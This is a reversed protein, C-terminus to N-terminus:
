KAKNNADDREKRLDSISGAGKYALLWGVGCAISILVFIILAVHVGTPKSSAAM